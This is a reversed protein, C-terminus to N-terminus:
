WGREYQVPPRTLGFPIDLERLAHLPFNPDRLSARGVLILDADDAQLIADAQQATSIAGVAATMIGAESRIQRAFPVQYGADSPIHVGPVAGGSSCDILDAGAAKLLKSLRVSDEITWGNAHWDSCSLRVFLPMDNPIARRIETTVRLLFRTRNEFSGGFDDTRHNSLPSYFSHLLYGHAAHIEIVDFGAIFARKAAQVFRHVLQDIEAPTLEHPTQQKDTFPIASAGVVQWPTFAPRSTDLAFPSPSSAKRGAHALQIGVFAGHQKCFRVIKAWPEIHDDSWIGTCCPTIRGEPEVATAETLILGAGGTARSGLHVLHWDNPLGDTASYMCMPSVAIRNRLVIKGISLSDFLRSM